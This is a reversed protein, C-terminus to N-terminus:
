VSQIASVLMLHIIQKAAPEKGTVVKIVMLPLSAIFGMNHM